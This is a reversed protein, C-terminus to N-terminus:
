GPKRATVLSYHGFSHNAQVDVFGVDCLLAQLEALTFQKGLEHILMGVSFAAVPLPGDKLPNLLMEHLCIHGGPELARFASRALRECTNQDWDHFINGFLIGDHGSPLPDFMTGAQTRIRDSLGYERINREAIACVPELDLVTIQLKPNGSAAGISLAGSGGGVDLLNRIVRFVHQKGLAGAAPLTMRHMLGIFGHIDSSDLDAMSVAIPKVPQGDATFAAYHEQFSPDEEPLLRGRHFPSMTMLYAKAEESLLYEGDEKPCALGLAALVAAMAEAARPAMSLARCMDQITFPAEGFRDFLGIEQATAVTALARRMALLRQITSDATSPVPLKRSM